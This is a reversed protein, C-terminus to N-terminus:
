YKEWEKLLVLLLYKTKLFIALNDFFLIISLYIIKECM